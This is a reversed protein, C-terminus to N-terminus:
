GPPDILSVDTEDLNSHNDGGISYYNNEEDEGGTEEATDDLEAGPVDLGRDLSSGETESYTEKRDMAYIDESAPYLLYGPTLDSGSTIDENKGPDSKAAVEKTKM